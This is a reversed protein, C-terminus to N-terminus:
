FRGFAAVNRWRRSLALFLLFALALFLLASLLLLLVSTSRLLVLFVSLLFFLKSRLPCLFFLGLFPLLGFLLCTFFLPLGPRGDLLCLGFNRGLLKRIKGVAAGGHHVIRCINVLQYFLDRVKQRIFLKM